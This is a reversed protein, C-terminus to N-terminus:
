VIYKITLKESVNYVNLPKELMSKVTSVINIVMMPVNNVDLPTLNLKTTDSNRTVLNM